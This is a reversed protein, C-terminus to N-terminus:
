KWENGIREVRAEAGTTGDNSLRWLTHTSFAGRFIIVSCRFLVTIHGPRLFFLITYLLRRVLWAGSVLLILLIGLILSYYLYGGRLAWRVRPFFSKVHRKEERYASQIVCNLISSPREQRLYKRSFYEARVVYIKVTILVYSFCPQAQKCM